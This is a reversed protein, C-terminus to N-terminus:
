VVRVEIGGDLLRRYFPAGSRDPRSGQGDVVVRVAVGEGAKAILADAFRDGIAGPRFGFQNIHVSSSAAAIDDLIRPFFEPGGVRVDTTSARSEGFELALDEIRVPGTVLPEARAILDTM